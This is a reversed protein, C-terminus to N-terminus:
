SYSYSIRIEIRAVYDGCKRLPPNTKQRVSTVVSVLLLLLLLLVLLSSSLSLPVLFKVSSMMEGGGTVGVLHYNRFPSSSSSLSCYSCSSPPSSLVILAFVVFVFSAALSEPIVEM